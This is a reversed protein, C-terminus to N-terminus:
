TRLRLAYGGLLAVPICCDGHVVERVQLKHVLHLITRGLRCDVSFLAELAVCRRMADMHLVLMAIIPSKCIVNPDPM